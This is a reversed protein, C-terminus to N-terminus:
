SSPPLWTRAASVLAGVGISLTPEIVPAYLPSHNSPQEAVRALVDERGGLAIAATASDRSTRL